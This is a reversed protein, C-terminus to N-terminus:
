FRLIHSGPTSVLYNLFKHPSQINIRVKSASIQKTFPRKTEKKKKFLFPSGNTIFTKFLRCGISGKICGFCNIRLM